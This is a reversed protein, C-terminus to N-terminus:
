ESAMGEMAAMKMEEGKRRDDIDKKQKMEKEKIKLEALDRRLIVIDALLQSLEDYEEETGSRYIDHLLCTKINRRFSVEFLCFLISIRWSNLFFLM